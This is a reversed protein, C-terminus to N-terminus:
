IVDKLKKGREFYTAVAEVCKLKALMRNLYIKRYWRGEFRDVVSRTTCTLEDLNELRRCSVCKSKAKIEPSVVFVAVELYYCWLM